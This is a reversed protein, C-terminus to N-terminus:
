RAKPDALWAALSAADLDLVVDGLRDPGLTELRLVVSAREGTTLPRGLRRTLQHVLPELGAERGKQLGQELGQKRGRKWGKHELADFADIFKQGSMLLEKEEETLQGKAQVKVLRKQLKVLFPLSIRRELANRPLAAIELTARALTAGRGFLRLTLTDRTEPLEGLIVLRVPIEAESLAYVGDPWGELPHLAFRDIAGAPRGSSLIWLVPLRPPPPTNPPATRNQPGARARPRALRAQRNSRLLLLHHWNLLKRISSRIEDISPPAHFAELICPSALLRGLLGLEALRPAAREDPTFLLDIRQADVTIEVEAEVHGLGSLLERLLNKFFHDFRFRM